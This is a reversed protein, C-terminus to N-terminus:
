IWIGSNGGDWGVGSPGLSESIGPSLGFKCLRYFSKGSLQPVLIRSSDGGRVCGPGVSSFAPLFSAFAKEKVMDWPRACLMIGTGDDWQDRDSCLRPESSLPCDKGEVPPIHCSCGSLVGLQICSLDTLAPALHRTFTLLAFM